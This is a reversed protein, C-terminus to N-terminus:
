KAKGFVFWSYKNQWFKAVEVCTKAGKLYVCPYYTNKREVNSFVYKSGNNEVKLQGSGSQFEFRVIDGAVIAFSQM